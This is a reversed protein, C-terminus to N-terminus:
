SAPVIELRRQLTAISSSLQQEVSSMLHKLARIDERMEGIDSRIARLLEVVLNFPEEAM